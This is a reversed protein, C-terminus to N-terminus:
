ALDQQNLIKLAEMLSDVEDKRAGVREEYSLGTDVCDPRLKEYYAMAADLEQQTLELEKKMGSNTEDTQQKAEEKHSMETNKVAVDENSDTMFTEYSEAALDEASSTESELRAFDSLVVDLFGLINGGAVQMGKYPAHTATDMEQGLGVSGQLLSADSAMAYYDRLVQAASEVADQAEKADAVTKTNTAKEESRMKTAEAQQGMVEAIADSLDKIESALQASEATHKEVAATLEEVEDAKNERTQKNTALEADCYAKSDAESNAQEMLKVILDKILTKVKGFPDAAARSALVSLSRSGL